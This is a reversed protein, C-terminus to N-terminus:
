IKPIEIVQQPREHDNNIDVVIIMSYLDREVATFVSILNDFYQSAWRKVADEFQTRSLGIKEPNDYPLVGYVKGAKITSLSIRIM